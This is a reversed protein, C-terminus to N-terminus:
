VLGHSNIPKFNTRRMRWNQRLWVMAISLRKPEFGLLRRSSFARRARRRQIAGACRDVWVCPNWLSRKEFGWSGTRFSVNGGSYFKPSKTVINIVGGPSGIDTAVGQTIAAVGKLVQINDIGAADTLIGTGRFDSNVRVGNKLIPIGRYGRSGM